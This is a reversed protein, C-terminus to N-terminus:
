HYADFAGSMFEITFEIAAGAVEFSDNPVIFGDQGPLTWMAMADWRLDKKVAQQCDGIMKRLTAQPTNSAIFIRLQVKLSNTQRRAQKDGLEPENNLDCVSLAPLEDEDWHTQWDAVNNGLDTKYGAAIQIEQMRAIVKDILKQRITDAM